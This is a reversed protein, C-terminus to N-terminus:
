ERAALPTSRDWALAACRTIPLIVIDTNLLIRLRKEIDLVDVVVPEPGGALASQLEDGIGRAIEETAGLPIPIYLFFQLRM